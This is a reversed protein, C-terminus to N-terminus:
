RRASKVPFTPFLRGRLVSVPIESTKDYGMEALLQDNMYVVVYVKYIGMNRKYYQFCAEIGSIVPYFIDSFKVIIEEKMKDCVQKVIEEPSEDEELKLAINGCNGIPYFVKLDWEVYNFYGIYSAIQMITLPINSTVYVKEKESYIVLDDLNTKVRLCESIPYKYVEVDDIKMYLISLVLDYPISVEEQTVWTLNHDEFNM